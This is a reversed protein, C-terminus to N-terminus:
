GEMRRREGGWQESCDSEMCARPTGGPQVSEVHIDLKLPFYVSDVAQVGVGLLFGSCLGIWPMTGHAAGGYVPDSGDVLLASAEEVWWREM